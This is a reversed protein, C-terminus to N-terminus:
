DRYPLAVNQIPWVCKSIVTFLKEKQEKEKTKTLFTNSLLLFLSFLSSFM